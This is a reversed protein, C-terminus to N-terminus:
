HSSVEKRKKWLLYQETVVATITGLILGNNILSAIVVPLGETAGAPLFMVGVGILFGIGASTYTIKLDNAKEIESLAIGVMKTFIVFTVSYGVPAPLAAMINMLPPLLSIVTVFLSGLIFPKLAKIGTQSVFGASGSIPVSGISSFIGGAFQNIGSIIGAQKFRNAQKHDKKLVEEMVRISAIMNTVLLITIFFSTVIIGSDLKPFGFSLIDPFSFWHRSKLVSPSLGFIIFLIWGFIMGLMISFQKIWQIKIQGLYFTLIIIIFCLLATIPQIVHVGDTLGLMGKMFSGSLQLILLFLYIFTVTPTFLKALKQILGFASLIIFFVGSLMLGGSLERLTEINSTYLTGVFGAYITFVSWWLGAPGESIPLRHGIIGQLLGAIGLVFITREVFASTEVPNLHYLDAIAIPAAIAGAIMFAMWQIASITTKM